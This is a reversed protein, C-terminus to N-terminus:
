AGAESKDNISLGSPDYQVDANAQTIESWVRFYVRLCRYWEVPGAGDGFDKTHADMDSYTTTAMMM